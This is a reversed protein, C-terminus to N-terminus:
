FRHGLGLYLGMPYDVPRSLDFPVIYIGLRIQAHLTFNDSLHYAYANDLVPGMHWRGGHEEVDRPECSRFEDFEIVEGGTVRCWYEDTAVVRGIRTLEPSIGFHIRSRQWRFVYSVGLAFSVSDIRKLLIGDSDPLGFSLSSSFTLMLDETVPRAIGILFGPAYLSGRVPSELWTSFTALTSIYIEEPLQRRQPRPPPRPTVCAQARSLELELTDSVAKSELQSDRQGEYVFRGSETDYLQVHVTARDGSSFVWANVIADLSFAQALWEAEILELRYASGQEVTHAAQASDWVSLVTRPYSDREVRYMPALRQVAQFALRAAAEAGHRDDQDLQDARAMQALGLMFAGESLLESEQWRLSTRAASILGEHLSEIAAALNFVRFHDVGIRLSQRAIAEYSQEVSPAQRETILALLEDVEVTWREDRSLSRILSTRLERPSIAQFGTEHPALSHDSYLEVPLVIVRRPAHEEQLLEASLRSRPQASAASVGIVLPALVSLTLMCLRLMIARLAQASRPRLRVSAGQGLGSM